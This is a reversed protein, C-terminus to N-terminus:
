YNNQKHQVLMEKRQLLESIEQELKLIEDDIKKKLNEDNDESNQDHNNENVNLEQSEELNFNSNMLEGNDVVDDIVEEVVESVNKELEENNSKSNEIYNVCFNLNQVIKNEDAGEIRLDEFVQGNIMFVLTPMCSIRHSRSVGEANDVNVKLITVFDKYQEALEELKPTLRRCPGCWDAYFDLLFVKNSSNSQAENLEEQNNIIKVM